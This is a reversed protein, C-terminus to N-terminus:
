EHWTYVLLCGPNAPQHLVELDYMGLVKNVIVKMKHSTGTVITLELNPRWNENVFEHVLEPVDEHPVGHLDLTLSM